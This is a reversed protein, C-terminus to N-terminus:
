AGTSTDLVNELIYDYWFQGSTFEGPNTVIVGDGPDGGISKFYEERFTERWTTPNDEQYQRAATTVADPIVVLSGGNVGGDAFEFSIAQESDQGVVATPAVLNVSIVGNVAVATEVQGTQPNTYTVPGDPVGTVTVTYAEGPAPNLPVRATTGVNPVGGPGVTVFSGGGATGSYVSDGGTVVLGPGAGDAFVNPSGSSAYNPVWNGHGGTSDGIRHVAVGNVFVTPSTGVAPDGCLCTNGKLIVPEGNVFVNGSGGTYYTKHFPVRFGAHGAHSDANARVIAPM